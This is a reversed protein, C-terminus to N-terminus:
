EPSCRGTALVLLMMTMEVLNLQKKLLQFLVDQSRQGHLNVLILIQCDRRLYLLLVQHFERCVWGKLTKGIKHFCQFQLVPRLLGWHLHIKTRIGQAIKLWRGVQIECAFQQESLFKVRLIVDAQMLTDPLGESTSRWGPHLAIWACPVLIRVANVHALQRIFGPVVFSENRFNMAVSVRSGSRINLCLIVAVAM